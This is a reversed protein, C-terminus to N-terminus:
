DSCHRTSCTRLPGPGIASGDDCAATARTSVHVPHQRVVLGHRRHGVVAAQRLLVVALLLVAVGHDVVSVVWVLLAPRHGHRLGKRVGPVYARVPVHTVKCEQALRSGLDDAARVARESARKYPVVISGYAGHAYDRRVKFAKVATTDETM